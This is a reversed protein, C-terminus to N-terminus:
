LEGVHFIEEMIIEDNGDDKEQQGGAGPQNHGLSKVV